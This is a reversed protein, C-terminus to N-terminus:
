TRNGGEWQRVEEKGALLEVICSHMIKEKVMDKMFIEGIFRMHGTYSKKLIIEKEEKEEKSVDLARIDELAKVRDVAFEQACRNLLKVRFSKGLSEEDESSGRSWENTIKACLDAYM